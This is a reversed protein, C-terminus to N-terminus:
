LGFDKTVQKLCNLFEPLFTQDCEFSFRLEQHSPGYQAVFGSVTVHGNDLVTIEIFDKEFIHGLRAKGKVKRYANTIDEFFSKLDDFYFPHESCSFGGSSVSFRSTYGSGDDFKEVCSLQIFYESNVKLCIQNDTKMQHSCLEDNERCRCRMLCKRSSRM